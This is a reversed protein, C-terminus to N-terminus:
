FPAFMNTLMASTLIDDASGADKGSQATESIERLSTLIAVLRPLLKDESHKTDLHHLLYTVVTWHLHEVEKRAKLECRDPSVISIAKLLSIIELSLNHKKIIEAMSFALRAYNKGWGKEMETVHFCKGSPMTAVELDINYGRHAELLWVEDWAHRLLNAQDESPLSSFGPLSRAFKIYGMVWKEARAIVATKSEESVHPQARDDNVLSDVPTSKRRKCHSAIPAVGREVVRTRKTAGRSRNDDDSDTNELKKNSCGLRFHENRSSTLKGRYAFGLNCNILNVSSNSSEQQCDNISTRSVNKVPFNIQSNYNGHFNTKDLSLVDSFVNRNNVTTKTMPSGQINAPISRPLNGPLSGSLNNPSTTIRKHDGTVQTCSVDNSPEMRKSLRFKHSVIVRNNKDKEQALEMSIDMQHEEHSSNQSKYYRLYAMQKDLLVDETVTASSKLLNDDASFLSKLLADLDSSDTVVNQEQQLMKVEITDRTRKKHSYRGTKIADKSMGLKLCRKYRCFRCSSRKNGKVDCTSNKTCHFVMPRKLARRFFGKCAECSNVGYHFGSAKAGCIRCPPLILNSTSNDKSKTEVAEVTIEDVDVKPCDARVHNKGSGNSSNKKIEQTSKSADNRSTLQHEDMSSETSSMLLDNSTMQVTDREAPNSKNLLTAEVHKDSNRRTHILDHKFRSSSMSQNSSKSGHRESSVNQQIRKPSSTKMNRRSVNSSSTGNEKTWHPSATAANGQQWHPRLSITSQTTWHRIPNIDSEQNEREDTMNERRFQPSTPKIDDRIWHPSTSARNERNWQPAAKEQNWQLSVSAANERNQYFLAPSAKDRNEEPSLPVLNWQQCVGDGMGMVGRRNYNEVEYGGGISCIVGNNVASGKRVKIDISYNRSIFNNVTRIESGQDDLNTYVKGAKERSDYIDSSCNHELSENIDPRSSRLVGVEFSRNFDKTVYNNRISVIRQIGRDANYSELGDEHLYNQEGTRIMSKASTEGGMVYYEKTHYMEEAINGKHNQIGDEVLQEIQFERDTNECENYEHEQFYRMKDSTTRHIWGGHAGFCECDNLTDPESSRDQQIYCPREDEAADLCAMFTPETTANTLSIVYSTSTDHDLYNRPDDAPCCVDKDQSQYVSYPTMELNWSSTM